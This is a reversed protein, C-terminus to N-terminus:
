RASHRRSPEPPRAPDRRPMIGPCVPRRIAAQDPGHREIFCADRHLLSAPHCRARAGATGSRANRGRRGSVDVRGSGLCTVVHGSFSSSATEALRALELLAVVVPQEAFAGAREGVDGVLSSDSSSSSSSSSSQSSSSSSSSQSGSWWRRSLRAQRRVGTLDARPAPGAAEPDIEYRRMADAVAEGKVDGTQALADLVAVVIHAADVEFHRRLARRMDSFGYGDTGLVVYPSRARVPRDRRPGAKVWDSVAVIPGEADDLQQTVYPTRPAETPHLRNWRECDLADDRLQKWGPVSWVDARSTTTSPSCSSRRSRRCCWRDARSSRRATRRARRRRRPLPVHGRVIGDEVGERCRRSRTTRTTSRSTTSATRPSRDTCAGSATACSAGRGRVRVRPRVRPLEPVGDRVHQSQGDCHQLGEGTLTTRGATAGMLFGRGRQDGFSWILDGVRQFGFMSYFIFFPIMPQGWTAYATAAATFDAM